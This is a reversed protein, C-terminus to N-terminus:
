FLKQIFRGIAYVHFERVVGTIQTLQPVTQDPGGPIGYEDVVPFSGKPADIDIYVCSHIYVTLLYVYHGIGYPVYPLYTHCLPWDWITLITLLYPM